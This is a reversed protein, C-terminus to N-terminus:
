WSGTTGMKEAKLDKSGTKWDGRSTRTEAEFPPLAVPYIVAQM